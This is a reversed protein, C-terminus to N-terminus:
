PTELGRSWDEAFVQNIRDVVDSQAIIIGLERNKDLSQSSLNVSGLYARQGDVVILKAHVYPSSLFKVGKVRELVKKNADVKTLPPLIVHVPITKGKDALLSIMRDDELVEMEIDLSKTAGSILTTLKGRANDPSIVLNTSQPFFGSRNWDADFIAKAELSDELNEDCANFERNKTFATKTLNMNLVCVIRGDVIVTKEHTFIFSPNAWRVEVGAGELEPKTKQNLGGGGFPHEELIVRVPVGRQDAQGLYLIVDPDSLLYSEVLIEKQASNLVELIPQRGDDPEVFLAIGSQTGLVESTSFEKQPLKHFFVTAVTLIGFLFLYVSLKWGKGM